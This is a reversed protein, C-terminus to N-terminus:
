WCSGLSAWGKSPFNSILTLDQEMPNWIGQFVNPALLMIRNELGNSVTYPIYLHGSTALWPSVMTCILHLTTTFPNVRLPGLSYTLIIYYSIQLSNLFIQLHRFGLISFVTRCWTGKWLCKLSLFIPIFLMLTKSGQESQCKSLDWHIVTDLYKYDPFYINNYLM